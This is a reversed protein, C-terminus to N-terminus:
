RVPLNAVRWLALSRDAFQGEQTQELVLELPEPLLYPAAQLNIPRWDGTIIDRNEHQPFTTTLLWRAGSRRINQLAAHVDRESLHILVDRALVADAAPLEDRVLDVVLFERGPGSHRAAVEEVLAPVIDGGTYHDLLPVVHQMWHFDGCPVDLLTRISYKEFLQPLAQRVAATEALNSGGGSSSESDGWHNSAHIRAFTRRRAEPRLAYYGNVSRTILRWLAPTRYSLVDGARRVLGTRM